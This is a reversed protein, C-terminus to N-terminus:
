RRERLCKALQYRAEIMAEEIRVMIGREIAAVTRSTHLRWSTESFNRMIKNAQSRTIFGLTTLAAADDGPFVATKEKWGHGLMVRMFTRRYHDYYPNGVQWDARSSPLGTPWREFPGQSILTEHM